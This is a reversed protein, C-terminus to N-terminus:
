SSHVESDPDDSNADISGRVTEGTGRLGEGDGRDTWGGLRDRATRGGERTLAPVDRVTAESDRLLFAIALLAVAAVALYGGPGIWAFGSISAVEYSGIIPPTFPEVGRLPAGPDLSHGAQYLRYQIFAFMGGFVSLTGLLQGTLGLKLKEVTPALAVFVGMAAVGLLVFPGLIWEPAAIANPHVAYNPDVFVPDPYYFGVYKNLTQVEAYDGGLRPYAYLEVVLAQGPYQPATMTIRWMPVLIAVVLLGAAVLPLCRRLEVFQRARHSARATLDGDALAAIRAIRNKM